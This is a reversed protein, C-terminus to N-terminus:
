NKTNRAYSSHRPDNFTHTKTSCRRMQWRGVIIIRTKVFRCVPISSGYLWGYFNVRLPVRACAFINVIAAVQFEAKRSFHRETPFHHHSPPEAAAAAASSYVVPFPLVLAVIILISNAWGPIRYTRIARALAQWLTYGRRGLPRNHIRKRRRWCESAM